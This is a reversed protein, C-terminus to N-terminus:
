NHCGMPLVAILNKRTVMKGCIFCLFLFEPNPLTRASKPQTFSSFVSYYTVSNILLSALNHFYHQYSAELGGKGGGGKYPTVQLDEVVLLKGVLQGLTYALAKFSDVLEGPHTGDADWKDLTPTCLVPLSLCPRPPIPFMSSPFYHYGNSSAM